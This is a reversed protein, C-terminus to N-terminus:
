LQYGQPYGCVDSIRKAGTAYSIDCKNLCNYNIALRRNQPFDEVLPKASEIEAGASEM